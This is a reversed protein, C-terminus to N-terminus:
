TFISTDVSSYIIDGDRMSLQKEGRVNQFIFSNATYAYPQLHEVGDSPAINETRHEINKYFTM